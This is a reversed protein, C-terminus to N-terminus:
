GTEETEPRQRGRRRTKLRSGDQDSLLEETQGAKDKTAQVSAELAAMLDIVKGAAPPQEALTVEKGAIKQEIVGLLMTQYENEYKEPTFKTTLNDILMMAMELERDAITLETTVQVLEEISRIENPYYMTELALGSGYVRLAALHERSRIVIKAIALQERGLMAKKLLHYAKIGTEQPELFYTKQFYVPDIDKLEVFDLIDIARTKDPTIAEFDADDMIAYQGKQFEYGRVIEEEGVEKHCTPCTKQYKLPTHCVSHLYNFKIDNSSTGAYLKVPINVLGFSISGNWLSRM